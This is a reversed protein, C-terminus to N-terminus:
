HLRAPRVNGVRYLHITGHPTTRSSIDFARNLAAIFSEVDLARFNGGIVIAGISPDDIIIRRSTYREFEGVAQRLTQGDFSLERREWALRRFIQTLAIRQIKVGQTTLLADEGASITQLAREGPPPQTARDELLAVRGETVTVEVAHGSDLRVDFATGVAVVIRNGAHVEFPRHADHTVAFHAEGHLLTVARRAATFRVQLRTNANMTVASGDALVVRSLGGPGTRYSQTLATPALKWLALIMSAAAIGAVMAAFRIPGPRSSGLRWAWPAGAAIDRKAGAARRLRLPLWLDPLRHPALLDPDIAHDAPRLKALRQTREWAQALRLYAARHRPDALLWQALDPDRDDGRADGRVIWAAAEAETDSADSM